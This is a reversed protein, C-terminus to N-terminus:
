LGEGALWKAAASGDRRTLNPIFRHYRRIVMEVSTDGLQKAVWGIDEGASLMLTAFTHRTQYMTRYRLGARRLAPKWVRERLNTMDLAGGDRNPFIWPARLQSTARQALLAREVPPLMAVDRVSAVTKTPGEGFRNVTRRVGFTKRQWDHGGM